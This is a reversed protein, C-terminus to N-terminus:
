PALPPVAAPRVPRRGRARAACRELRRAGADHQLRRHWRRRAGAAREVIPSLDAEAIDPALKVVIPRRPKGAALLEARAALVRGAPRRAGGAGAPRAPGAHQALLRQRHLLQGRRLLPARGRRLRRRPRGCGQQRRRQRRRHRRAARAAAAGARRCPGRQQLRAPQHARPRETLRFVRPRPNGDQPLPTVTGIEAFGFGMGLVADPM